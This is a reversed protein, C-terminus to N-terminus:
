NDTENESILHKYKNYLFSIVLLLVGLSVFVITKAITNLHSIDYFFLKILTIGFLAIAGIRIPKNKKWIGFAILFLSYSGWLISLGLKYSQESKLIDVWNLLESSAIWLITIHLLLEFSIRFNPHQFVQKIYLYCSFLGLAVFLFSLYRIWLNITGIHYYQSLTQELYSERLESLVYLGQFLFSALAFVILVLNLLGLNKNKLKKLNVFSLISVFLLSYNITWITKFSILDYNWYTDPYTRGEPNIEIASDTFLQNWYTTIEMVFAYYVTFILIGPIIFSFINATGKQRQFHPQSTKNLINIFVFAAIFLVSTLLNVNFLPTIRSEPIDPVYSAYGDSWDQIISFFALFMLPYSLKEYFSVQKTRGIWFLLAAEGAWLLTVWNGDLQVPFALTIFVLVLGTILYHINKDALKQRYIIVSVVFHVLANVLTFLGLLEKGIQHDDLLAFGLGYFIFSNIIVLIVDPVAFKEKQLLKYGLFTLYFIVFFLSLFVIALGFHETPQFQVIYWSLYILWTLGFSVLYLAKWYKKIAIALIGINLISMYTFLVAVKGSGDSLLFPVAYAGVLGIHAIIQRSYQLAAIVTFVTFVVMISFAALQPILGYLAFAFYTIFYLIAMAGSVLVASFNEYKSKLKIGFALLGLGFVYGLIIRTLPSILDNEISYKAGIAVGIVTIAIGIKNILNEGIFKEIDSKRKAVEPIPLFPRIEPEYKKEVIPNPQAPITESNIQFDADIVPKDPNATNSEIVPDQGNAKLKNLEIRLTNIENSFDEQRKLLTDLKALLQNIKENNDSM